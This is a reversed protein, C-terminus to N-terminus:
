QETEKSPSTKEDKKTFYTERQHYYGLAFLAQEESSFATPYPNASPSMKAMIDAINKELNVKLGPSRKGIKSLHNASGSDLMRFVKQPQASASGYYKDKITANVNSGLAASQIREYVAFLRGLLYGKNTNEPDLAVPAEKEMDFNRILVSKLIATRRANVDHDARIRLLIASLLMQPYRTGTLIARMWQGALLPPVNERKGQVATENLYQWLAPPRSHKEPLTIRMEELYRQYNKAIEGFSNEIWFRISIRSANPSLGLVYFHVGDALDPAFSRLSEGNRIKELIPLIKEKAEALDKIKGEQKDEEDEDDEPADEQETSFFSDFIQEALHVKDYDTGDAWFVVSADGIQIRNNSGKGLFKNLATTYAFAAAESVPANDGREHGYSSFSDLNFSVISGGSSQGGWIGKIAPHLRAIPGKEGTVLCIANTKDGEESIRAWQKRAEPLDHLFINNLRESKLAFVINQDKMEEPWGLSEFMEAKWLDLFKLLAKLGEDQTENLATQHYDVFAQHERDLRKGEGASIGLVYSTKDWLFNPSIGSARKAPQPVVMMRPIPKKQSTDRIDRPKGAPTGDPNLPIVFGIKETSLGFTPVQKEALLREYARNLSSFISM